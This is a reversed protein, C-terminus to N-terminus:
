YGIDLEQVQNALKDLIKRRSRDNKNKYIILDDLFVRRHLGVKRFPLCGKKLLGIFYPRSVNLFNAAEQTSLEYDKPLLTVKKGKAMQKLVKLLLKAATEPLAIKQHIKEDIIELKLSHNKIARTLIGASEKALLKEENFQVAEQRNDSKTISEKM